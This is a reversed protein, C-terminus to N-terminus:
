NFILFVTFSKTYLKCRNINAISANRILVLFVMFTRNINLFFNWLKIFILSPENCCNISFNIFCFIVVM